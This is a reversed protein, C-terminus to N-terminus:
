CNLHLRVFKALGTLQVVFIIKDCNRYSFIKLNIKDISVLSFNNKMKKGCIKCEVGDFMKMKKHKDNVHRAKKLPSSFTM